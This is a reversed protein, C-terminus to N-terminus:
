PRGTGGHGQSGHDHGPPEAKANVPRSTPAQGQSGSLKREEINIGQAALRTAYRAPSRSFREIDGKCCFYVRQGTPLDTYATPDITEGDVPCRTQYTYSGALAAKFRAPDYKPPCKQCCFYVGQGDTYVFTQGDIPNGTVPCNVQVRPLKALAARQETVRTAYADPNQKFKDIAADSSFYVPGDEAMTKFSFDIPEGTVPDAPLQPGKASEAGPPQAVPARPGLTATPSAHQAHNEDPQVSGGGHQAHGGGGCCQALANTPYFAVIAAALSLVLSSSSM